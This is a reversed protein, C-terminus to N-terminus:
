RSKMFQNYTLKSSISAYFVHSISFALILLAICLIISFPFESQEFLKLAFIFFSQHFLYMEYSSNGLGIALQSLKNETKYTKGFVLFPITSGLLFAAIAYYTVSKTHGPNAFQISLIVLSTLAIWTQTKMRQNSYKHMLAGCLFWMLHPFGMFEFLFLSKSLIKLEPFILHLCDTLVFVVTTLSFILFTLKKGVTFYLAGILLYFIVEIQLTWLVGTIWDLNSGTITNLQKIPLMTLSAFYNAFTLRNKIEDVSVLNGIIYITSIILFLAPFLRLFRKILFIGLNRSSELSISIVYGSIIFFVQVGLSFQDVIDKGLSDPNLIGVEMSHSIHFVAVMFIALFRLLQLHAYKNM